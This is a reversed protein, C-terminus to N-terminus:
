TFCLNVLFGMGRFHRTCQETNLEYFVSGLAPVRLADFSLLTQWVYWAQYVMKPCEAMWWVHNHKCVSGHEPLFQVKCNLRHTDYWLGPDRLTRALFVWCTGSIVAYNGRGHSTRYTCYSM